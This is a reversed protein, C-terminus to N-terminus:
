DVKSEKALLRQAVASADDLHCKIASYTAEPDGAVIADCIAQMHALGSRHRDSTALTMVRLRSIRGNLRNVIEWAVSHGAENFIVEYFRTSAKILAGPTGDSFAQKLGSLASKLSKRMQESGHEACAMAASTELMRRINYIQQADEWGLQAVIPGKNPLIEVLGEAELYRITERVVTRSVGLQDCLPREVLREGPAFHGEIIAERLKVQVIERLTAPPQDIKLHSLGSKTMLPKYCRTLHSVLFVQSVTNHYVM